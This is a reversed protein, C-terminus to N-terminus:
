NYRWEFDESPSGKPLRDYPDDEDAEESEEADKKMPTKDALFEDESQSSLHGKREAQKERMKKADERGDDIFDKEFKDQSSGGEDEDPSQDEHCSAFENDSDGKKYKPKHDTSIQDLRRKKSHNEPPVRM